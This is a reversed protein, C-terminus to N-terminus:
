RPSGDASPGAFLLVWVMLKAGDAPGPSILLSLLSVDVVLTPMNEPIGNGHLYGKMRCRVNYLQANRVDELQALVM